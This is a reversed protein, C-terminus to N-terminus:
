AWGETKDGKAMEELEDFLDRVPETGDDEVPYGLIAQEYERDSMLGLYLKRPKGTVPNTGLDKYKLRSVM